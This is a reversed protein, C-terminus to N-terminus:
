QISRSELIAEEAVNAISVNMDVDEMAGLLFLLSPESEVIEKSFSRNSEVATNCTFM